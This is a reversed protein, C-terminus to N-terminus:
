PKCMISVIETDLHLRADSVNYLFPKRGEYGGFGNKANISGCVSSLGIV